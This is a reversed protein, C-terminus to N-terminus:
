PNDGKYYDTGCFKLAKGSTRDIRTADNTNIMPESGLIGINNSRRDKEIVDGYGEDLGISAIMGEQGNIYTCVNMTVEVTLISGLLNVRVV